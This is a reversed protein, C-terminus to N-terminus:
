TAGGDRIKWGIPGKPTDPTGDKKQPTYTMKYTAFNLGVTETFQDEGGHGGNSISTIIVEEMEIKLYPVTEDGGAKRCTLTATNYHKGSICHQMLNPSAGDIWKTCSLNNVNAKGTGGGGGIHMSGSQTAGWSWSIVDIAKQMAKAEGGPDPKMELFCEVAM